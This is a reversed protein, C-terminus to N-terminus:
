AGADGTNGVESIFDEYKGGASRPINELYRPEIVFPYGLREQLRSVFEERERATLPRTVRLRAEIHTLATQVLQLQQIPLAQM